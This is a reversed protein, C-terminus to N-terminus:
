RGEQLLRMTDLAEQERQQARTQRRQKAFTKHDGERTLPPTPPTIDETRDQGTTHTAGRARSPAGKQPSTAGNHSIGAGEHSKVADRLHILKSAPVEDLWGLEVLRGCADRVKAAPIRCTLAISAQSMPECTGATSSRVLTGRVQSRSALFVCACWVGFHAAGDEHNMLEAFAEGGALLMPNPFAVWELHKIERSRNNEFLKDWDRIRYFVKPSDDPV